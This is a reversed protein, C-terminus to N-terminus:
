FSIDADVGKLTRIHKLKKVKSADVSIYQLESTGACLTLDEASEPLIVERCDLVIKKLNKYDSLNIKSSWSLYGEFIEINPPLKVQIEKIDIYRHDKLTLVFETLNDCNSGDFRELNNQFSDETNSIYLKKVSKSLKIFDSDYVYLELEKLNAFESFDTTRIDCYATLKEIGKFYQINGLNITDHIYFSQYYGYPDNPDKIWQIPMAKRVVITKLKPFTIESDKANNPLSFVMNPSKTESHSRMSLYNELCYRLCDGSAELDEINNETPLIVDYVDVISLSALQNCKSIDLKDCTSISCNKLTSPLIIECSYGSFEFETIDYESVDIRKIYMNRAIFKELTFPLKIFKLQVDTIYITKLMTFETLDLSIISEFWNINERINSSEQLKKKLNLIEEEGNILIDVIEGQVLSLKNSTRDYNKNRFSKYDKDTYTIIFKSQDLDKLKLYKHTKLLEYSEYKEKKKMFNEQREKKENQKKLKEDNQMKAQEFIQKETKDGFEEMSKLYREHKTLKKTEIQESTPEITDVTKSFKFKNRTTTDMSTM